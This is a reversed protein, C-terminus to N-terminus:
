SMKEQNEEQFDYADIHITLDKQGQSLSEADTKL